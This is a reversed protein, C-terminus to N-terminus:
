ASGPTKKLTELERQADGSFPSNPFEQVIRTFTQQAETRKGAELYTLGLQMLIGDIPLPGDAQDALQKYSNIANDYQGSRAQAEAMGLRAMQGYIGTGAKDIVQQYVNAAEAANGLSMQLTAERYRAFLGADSSSYQDAVAKFKTLAAKQREQETAFSLGTVPTGVGPAAPPGVRTMEVAQAEALASHARAEVRSRWGFYGLGVVTLVAVAVLLMTLPGQREEVTERANRVLSSLENEKLHHRETRKM